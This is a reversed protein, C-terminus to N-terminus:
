QMEKAFCWVNGRCDYPDMGKPWSGQLLAALFVRGIQM